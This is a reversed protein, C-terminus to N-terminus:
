DTNGARDPPLEVATFNCYGRSIDIKHRAFFYTM